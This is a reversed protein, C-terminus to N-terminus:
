TGLVRYTFSAYNDLVFKPADSALGTTSDVPFLIIWNSGTFEMKFIQWGAKSTATGRSAKGFWKNTGDTYYADTSNPTPEFFNAM